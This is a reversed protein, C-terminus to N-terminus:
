DYINDREILFIYCFSEEETPFIHSMKQKKTSKFFFQFYFLDFAAKCITVDDTPNHTCDLSSYVILNARM